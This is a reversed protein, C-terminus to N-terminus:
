QQVSIVYESVADIEEKSLQDGFPPMGSGGETVQKVVQTLEQGSTIAPGGNGGGGTAGHCVSCNNGFVTKGMDAATAPEEQQTATTTTKTDSKSDSDDDSSDDGGCAAILLACCSTLVLLGFRRLFAPKDTSRFRM